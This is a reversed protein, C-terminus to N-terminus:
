EEASEKPCVEQFPCLVCIRAQGCPTFAEVIANAGYHELSEMKELDQMIRAKARFLDQESVTTTSITEDQLYAKSIIVESPPCRYKKVAWLAYFLLQFSGGIGAASGMKWDCVAAGDRDARFALDIKGRATFHQTELRVQKEILTSPRSGKLRLPAFVDSALFHGLAELLRRESQECLEEADPFEYYYELLPVPPHREASMTHGHAYARSYNRDARYISKAWDTLWEFPGAEGEQIKKLYTGIALHLIQGSRLYRNSLKRLFRLVDKQSEAKASRVSSGYYRYYYQRPCRELDERRSYSWVVSYRDRTELPATPFLSLQIASTM